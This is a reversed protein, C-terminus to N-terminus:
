PPPRQWLTALKNRAEDTKGSALLLEVDALDSAQEETFPVGAGRPPSQPVLCEGVVQCLTDIGVGTKASVAIGQPLGDAPLALDCKNHVVVVRRASGDLEQYLGEDWAATTDDVLIVLDARAIEQLARAVGEAEIADGAARMGATDALEIPWGDVATTATLVDRTTGPEAFVIAREYGVIANMLSSKGANPRGAIAVKWPQTLHLGFEAWGLLSQLKTRAAAVEHRELHRQIASLDRSLAGRYQDLLVAATRETRAQALAFLAAAAIADAEIEKAWQDPQIVVCGEQVLAELIAEGAAVGGHCHIEVEEASILGVVLEEAAAAATHFRGFLVRGPGFAELPKGAAPLFRRGVIVRAGEGRVGITAVAGRGPPTLLAAYPPKPIL